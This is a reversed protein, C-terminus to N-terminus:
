GLMEMRPRDLYMAILAAGGLGWSWWPNGTMLAMAFGILGGAERTAFAVLTATRYAAFRRDPDGDFGEAESRKFVARKVASAAGLLLLSLAFLALPVAPPVESVPLQKSAYLYTLVANLMLLGMSIAGCVILLQRYRDQM